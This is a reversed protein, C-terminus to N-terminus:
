KPLKYQRCTTTGYTTSMTACTGTFPDTPPRGYLSDNNGLREVTSRDVCHGSPLLMPIQMVEYTIKDLFESPVERCHHMNGSATPVTQADELRQQQQQQLQQQHDIAAKNIRTWQGCSRQSISESDHDRSSTNHNPQQLLLSSTSPPSGNKGELWGRHSGSRCSSGSSSNSPGPKQKGQGINHSCGHLHAGRAARQQPKLSKKNENTLEKIHVVEQTDTGAGGFVPGRQVGQVRCHCEERSLWGHEVRPAHSSMTEQQNRACSCTNACSRHLDNATVTDQEPSSNKSCYLNVGESSVQSREKGVAALCSWLCDLKTCSSDRSPSGWVELSKLALPKPGTIRTVTLTLQRLRSLINPHKLPQVAVGTGLARSLVSQSMFSGEVQCSTLDTKSISFVGGDRKKFARNELLLLTQNDKVVTNPCIKVLNSCVSATHFSAAVELRMESHPALEPQVIICAVNVPVQQFEFDLQVPPRIFREVRFGKSRVSPNISILNSLPHDDASVATSSIDVLPQLCFNILEPYPTPPDM